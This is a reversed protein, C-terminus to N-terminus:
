FWSQTNSHQTVLTVFGAYDVKEVGNILQQLGRAQVDAELVYVNIGNHIASNILDSAQTNELAGYVGDEILLVSSGATAYTLCNSLTQHTLPSKNVTHLLM